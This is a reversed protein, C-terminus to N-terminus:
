WQLDDRLLESVIPISHAAAPMQVLQGALAFGLVVSITVSYPDQHSRYGRLHDGGTSNCIHNTEQRIAETPSICLRELIITM